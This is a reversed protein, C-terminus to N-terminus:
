KRSAASERRRERVWGFRRASQRGRRGREGRSACENGDCLLTRRLSVRVKSIRAGSGCWRSLGRYAFASICHRERRIICGRPLSKGLRSVVTANKLRSQTTDECARVIKKGRASACRACTDVAGGPPVTAYCILRAAARLSSRQLISSREIHFM